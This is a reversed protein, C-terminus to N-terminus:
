MCGLTTLSGRRGPIGGVDTQTIGADANEELGGGQASGAAAPHQQETGQLEGPERPQPEAGRVGEEQLCGSRSRRPHWTDGSDAMGSVRVPWLHHFLGPPLYSKILSIPKILMDASLHCLVAAIGQSSSGPSTGAPPEKFSAYFNAPFASFDM